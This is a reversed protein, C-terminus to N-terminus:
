RINDLKAELAEYRALDATFINIMDSNKSAVGYGICKKLEEIQVKVAMRIDSFEDYNLTVNYETM